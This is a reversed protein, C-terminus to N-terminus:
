DDREECLQIQMESANRKELDRVWWNLLGKRDASDAFELGRAEIATVSREMNDVEFSLLFFGEGHQKLHRGPALQMDIPQVLVFWQGELNARATVVGRQTLEDKVFIGQGLIKEYHEIGEDLDKVIFNIHHIRM